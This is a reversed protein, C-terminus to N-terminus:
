KCCENKDIVELLIEMSELVQQKKSEPITNYIKKFYLNM